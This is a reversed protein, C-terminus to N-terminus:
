ENRVSYEKVREMIFDSLENLDKLGDIRVMKYERGVNLYICRREKLYELSPTDDKRQYAVNEPVDVLFVLDPKPFLKLWKELLEKTEDTSYNTYAVFDTIITDYIYRDSIISKGLLLPIKIKILTQLFYDFLLLNQYITFSLNHKFLNRKM